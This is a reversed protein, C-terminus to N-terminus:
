NSRAEVWACIDREMDNIYDSYEEAETKTDFQRMITGRNNKVIYKTKQYAYDVMNRMADRLKGYPHDEPYQDLFEIGDLVQISAVVLENIQRNTFM